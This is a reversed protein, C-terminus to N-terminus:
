ITQTGDPKKQVEARIARIQLLAQPIKTGFMVQTQAIPIHEFKVPNASKTLKKDYKTRSTPINYATGVAYPHYTGEEDKEGFDTATSVVKHMM